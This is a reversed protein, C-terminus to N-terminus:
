IICNDEQLLKAADYYFSWHHYCHNTWADLHNFAALQMQHDPGDGVHPGLTSTGGRQSRHGWKMNPGRTAANM